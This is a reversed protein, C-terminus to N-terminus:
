KKSINKGTKYTEYDKENLYLIKETKKKTELHIEGIPANIAKIEKYYEVYSDKKKTKVINKLVNDKDDEKEKM